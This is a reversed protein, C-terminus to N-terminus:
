FKEAANSKNQLELPKPLTPIKSNRQLLSIRPASGPPAAKSLYLHTNLPLHLSPNPCFHPKKEPIKSGLERVARLQWRWDMLRRLVVRLLEWSNASFRFGVLSTISCKKVWCSGQADQSPGKWELKEDCVLYESRPTFRVRNAFSAPNRPLQKTIVITIIVKLAM